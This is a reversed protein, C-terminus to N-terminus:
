QIEHPQFYFFERCGQELYGRHATQLCPGLTLDASAGIAVNHTGSVDDAVYLTVAQNDTSTM